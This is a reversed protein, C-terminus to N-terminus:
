GSVRRRDLFRKLSLSLHLGCLVATAAQVAGRRPHEDQPVATAPFAQPVFLGQLSVLLGMLSIGVAPQVPKEGPGDRGAVGLGILALGIFSPFLATIHRRSAGLYGGLGLFSLLSGFAIDIGSM